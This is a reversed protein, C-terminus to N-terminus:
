HTALLVVGAIAFLGCVAFCLWAAALVWRAATPGLPNKAAAKRAKKEATAIQKPTAVTLADPFEEPHVVPPRGALVLLRLGLAYSAVIISAAGLATGFVAAFAAWDITM